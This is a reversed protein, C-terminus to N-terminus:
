QQPKEAVLFLNKGFIRNVFVDLMKSLPFVIRDFIRLSMLSPEGTAGPLLKYLLSAVAGLSDVYHVRNVILGAETTIARLRRKSYRRVHGVRRDMSSFLVSMAPVYLVLRGGPVIRDALEKLVAGDDDVHELCNISYVMQRSEKAIQDIGGAARYGRRILADRYPENIEVCVLRDEPAMILMTQSGTGAGFELIEGVEPLCRRVLRAVHTNYRVATEMFELNEGGLGASVSSKAVRSNM